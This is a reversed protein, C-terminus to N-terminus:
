FQIVFGLESNRLETQRRHSDGQSQFLEQFRNEFAPSSRPAAETRGRGSNEGEPHQQERLVSLGQLIVGPDRAALDDLM